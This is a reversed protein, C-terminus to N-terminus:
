EKDKRSLRVHDASVRDVQVDAMVALAEFMADVQGVKLYGTVPLDRLAEGDIEIHTNTYRSVDSVVDALKEGSFELIGDRWSLRRDLAAPPIRDLHEIKDEFVANEGKSIEILPKAPATRPTVADKAPARVGTSLAVRGKAVLVDILAGRLRVSFATGVATVAGKGAYVTFPRRKNPAVSFYAEGRLLTIMRASHTYRVDVATDTNLEIASGDALRVTKQEGVATRFAGTEGKAGRTLEYVVGAGAAVALSAAAAAFITRRVFIGGARRQEEILAVNDDAAAYDKLEEVADLAGWLANMRDFANAHQESANRWARFAALEEATAEGDEFRMVWAAAQAEIDKAEPLPVINDSKSM